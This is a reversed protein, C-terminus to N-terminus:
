IMNESLLFISFPSYGRGCCVELLLYEDRSDGHIRLVLIYVSRADVHARGSGVILFCVVERSLLQFLLQNIALSLM